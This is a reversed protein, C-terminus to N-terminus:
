QARDKAGQAARVAAKVEDTMRGSDYLAQPVLMFGGFEGPKNASGVIIGDDNIGYADELSWGDLQAVEDDLRIVQGDAFRVAHKTLGEDVSFYGVIEDANNIARPFADCYGCLGAYLDMMREGNWYFPHHYPHGEEVATGVVHDHDNIARGIQDNRVPLSLRPLLKNRGGKWIFADQSNWQLNSNIGGTVAGASNVGNASCQDAGNPMPLELYGKSPTWTYCKYISTFTWGVVMRSASIGNVASVDRHTRLAEGKRPWVAGEM